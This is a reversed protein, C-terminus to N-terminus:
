ECTGIGAGERRSPQGNESNIEGRMYRVPFCRLVNSTVDNVTSLEKAVNFKRRGARLLCGWCCESMILLDKESMQTSSDATAQTGNQRSRRFRRVIATTELHGHCLIRRSLMLRLSDLFRKCISASAAAGNPCPRESHLCLAM